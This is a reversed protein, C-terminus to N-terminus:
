LAKPARTRPGFLATGIRVMTAGAAVAAELDSSMGMSLTDLAFGRRNLNELCDALQSFWRLQEDYSESPPPICMLGRLRLKPCRAIAEALGAAEDPAIGGKGSEEALRVQILVQLPPAYHPRQENLRTVVRERDVTHVWQFREAIVRTKNAQIQGTFHWTLPLDQLADLKPLAEQLYNEGFDRQGLLALERIAAASHGKSIAVLTAPEPTRGSRAAADAIRARIQALRGSADTPRSEDLDIDEISSTVLVKELQWRAGLRARTM